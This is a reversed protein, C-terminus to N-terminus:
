QVMEIFMFDEFDETDDCVDAVLNRILRRIDAPSLEQNLKRRFAEIDNDLEQWCWAEIVDIVEGAIHRCQQVTDAAYVAIDGYSKWVLVKM